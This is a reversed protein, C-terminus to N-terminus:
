SSSGLAAGFKVLVRHWTEILWYVAVVIYWAWPFGFGYICFAATLLPLMRLEAWNISMLLFLLFRM